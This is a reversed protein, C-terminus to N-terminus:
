GSGPGTCGSGGWGRAPAPARAPACRRRPPGDGGPRGWGVQLSCAPCPDVGLELGVPASAVCGPGALDDRGQLVLGHHDGAGVRCCHHQGLAEHEESTDYRYYSAHRCVLHDNNSEITAQDNKRYPHSRTFYIDLNGPWKVVGHNIFESGNDFDMGLVPLPLCGVAANLVSVILGPLSTQPDLPHLDM